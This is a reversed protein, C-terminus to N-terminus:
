VKEFWQEGDSGLIKFSTIYMDKFASIAPELNKDSWIAHDLGLVGGSKLCENSGMLSALLSESSPASTIYLGDFFAHQMLSELSEQETGEHKTVKFFVGSEDGVETLSSDFDIKGASSVAMLASHVEMSDTWDTERVLAAIFGSSVTGIEAVKVASITRLAKFFAIADEKHEVM